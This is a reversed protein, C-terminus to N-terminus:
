CQSSTPVRRLMQISSSLRKGVPNGVALISGHLKVLVFSPPGGPSSPRYMGTRHSLSVLAPTYESSGKANTEFGSFEVLTDYNLTVTTSKTKAWHGTLRSLWQPLSKRARREADRILEAIANSMELFNARNRLTTSESLWPHRQGLYSLWLEVNGGFRAPAKLDGPMERAELLKGLEKLLPMHSSIARSFGAGLIYLDGPLTKL